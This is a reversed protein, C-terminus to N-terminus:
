AEQIAAVSTNSAACYAFQGKLLVEVMYGHDIATTCKEFKGNRAVLYHTTTRVDRISFWDASTKISKIIQKLSASM